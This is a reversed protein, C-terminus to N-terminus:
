AKKIIAEIRSPTIEPKAKGKLFSRILISLQFGNNFHRSM